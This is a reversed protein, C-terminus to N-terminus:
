GQSAASLARRYMAEVDAKLDRRSDPRLYLMHGGAYDEITIPTAGKLPPLQGVLYTPVMYPTILDTYGTAIMVELARNSARAEQIDDLVGAYGQRTPSTGFDWKNRVDRNLLRYPEDTRYALDTQAYDVFAASWLPITADLVPDPGHPWASSPHPDPGSVSGDYRSLLQGGDRDFEKIFVSPSVRALHQEVKDLPLGTLEAVRASATKGGQEAGSALAVLYDSLAYNEADALADKLAQRGTVGDSELKVAAYSPLALAWLMPDYDEGHIMSFELAPSVLVLGSPSIGTTKQLERAITAARFGGYSEGTLFVPSAMRNNDILYLRIFEALSETDQKVGWFDSEKKEGAARSYGTGVPDVFVLDTFSLWSADNDALRPPPGLM